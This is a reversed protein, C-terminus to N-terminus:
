INKEKGYLHGGKEKNRIMPFIRDWETLVYTNGKLNSTYHTYIKCMHEIQIESKNVGCEVDKLFNLIDTQCDRFDKDKFERKLLELEARTPENFWDRLKISKEQFYKSLHNLAVVLSGAGVIIGVVGLIIKDVTM